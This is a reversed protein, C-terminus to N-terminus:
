ADDETWGTLERFKNHISLTSEQIANVEPLLDIEKASIKLLAQQINTLAIALDIAVDAIDGKVAVGHSKEKDFAM